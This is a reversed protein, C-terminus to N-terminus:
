DNSVLARAIATHERASEEELVPPGSPPPPPTWSEDLQPNVFTPMAGFAQSVPQAQSPYSMGQAQQPYCMPQGMMGMPPINSTAQKVGALTGAVGGVVRKGVIGGIGGVLLLVIDNLMKTYAQDIPAMSKIPQVVFTVSYLLAIVIFFLILTIAIVVTAWIRVEIEEVSLREEPNPSILNM